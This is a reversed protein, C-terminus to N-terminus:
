CKGGNCDITVEDGHLSRFWVEAYAYVDYEACGFPPLSKTSDVVSRFQLEASSAGLNRVSISTPTPFPFGAQYFNRAHVWDQQDTTARTMFLIADLVRIM